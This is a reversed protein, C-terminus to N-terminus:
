ISCSLTHHGSPLTPSHTGDPLCITATSGVPINITIIFKGDEKKWEVALKGYPTNKAAKVWDIGSVPQPKIYTHRYGPQKEDPCIGALAQYFWSGIGNYCNHIQSKIGNWYEWTTYAGNDIMYLYGPCERKKLMSYMFEAEENETAWQTLVPVGVLGVSLHGKFRDATVEYLAKTVKDIHSDPTAGVLLPFVMDVQTGTSYLGTEENYFTNHIVKNHDEKRSAFVAAEDEKGLANAIKAMLGYSHSMVCNSVIDISLSDKQNIGEPTAWDGLYWHRQENVGWDKLIGKKFNSEAFEIWKKMNPYFREILRRDGYNVYSQWSAPIIFECWFPGGGARYPNPATHPMSGNEDQSDAYAQVWNMYLPALDAMMQASITSAHGDGGYGLRERHPCDVMDGGLILAHFTRHIMACIDNMDKDSCEFYADSEYDQRIPFATISELPLVAALGKIKLYRYAKYNFKSSFKGKDSNGIYLDTYVGDRFDKAEKIILDDYHLEITKGEPVSPMEIETFGVVTIGFDYIYCSDSVQQVSVPHHSETIRNLECMQPTATQVPNSICIVKTWELADLSAKKMDPLRYRSDVIEGGLNRYRWNGFSKRNSKTALWSEDTAVLTKANGKKLEDIQAKVYPGGAVVGPTADQYWGKGLHLVIENEGKKILPTVDYTVILSRTDYESVAPTLVADTVPKGNIYAEHYGLSNVHLLKRGGKTEINFRKRLLPAEEPSKGNDALGIYSAEQAWDSHELLGIGFSATSSWKSAKGDQNWVRVKWFVFDKSKLTKGAYEVRINNASEVKGSNWLDAEKENLKKPDTAALVQYATTGAGNKSSEMQWSLQPTTNDIALPENLFECQLRDITISNGCACCVIALAMIGLITLNKM